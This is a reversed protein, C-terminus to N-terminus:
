AASTSRALTVPGPRAVKRVHCSDHHADPEDTAFVGIQCILIGVV